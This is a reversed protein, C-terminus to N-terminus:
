YFFFARILSYYIPINSLHHPEAWHGTHVQAFYMIVEGTRWQYIFLYINWSATILLLLLLFRLTSWVCLAKQKSNLNWSIIASNNVKRLRHRWTLRNQCSILPFLCKAWIRSTVLSLGMLIISSRFAQALTSFNRTFINLSTHPWSWPSVGYTVRTTTIWGFINIQAGM